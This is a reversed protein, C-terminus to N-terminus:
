GVYEEGGADHETVDDDPELPPSAELKKVDSQTGQIRKIVDFMFNSGGAMLVGTLVMGVYPIKGVLGMAAFIDTNYNISILVGLAVTLLMTVTKSQELWPINNKLNETLTEIIIPFAVIAGLAIWNLQM